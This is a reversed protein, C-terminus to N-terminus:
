KGEKKKKDAKSKKKKKKDKKFDKSDSLAEDDTEEFEEVMKSSGGGSYPVFSLIQLVTLFMSVGEKVNKKGSQYVRMKIGLCGESGQGMSGYVSPDLPNRKSDILSVNVPEDNLITATSASVGWEGNKDKYTMNDWNAPYEPADSSKNENWFKLVEKEIRKKEAKSITMAVKYIFGDGDYNDVGKGVVSAFAVKSRATILTKTVKTNAM